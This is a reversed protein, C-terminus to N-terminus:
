TFTVWIASTWVKAGDAQTAVFWIPNAGHPGNETNLQVSGSIDTMLAGVPSIHDIAVFLDTGGLEKRIALQQDMM